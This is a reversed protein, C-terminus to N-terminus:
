EMLDTTANVIELKGDILSPESSLEMVKKDRLVPDYYRRVKADRVENSFQVKADKLGRDGIVTWMGKEANALDKRRYIWEAISKEIENDGIKIRVKTSINTRQICYRMRSIESLVDRHAQIWSNLQAKQDPYVPNEYDMDACFQSCKKVYDNAKNQLDKLSKLAEIIKM